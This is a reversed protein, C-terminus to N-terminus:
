PQEPLQTSTCLTIGTSWVVVVVVVEIVDSANHLRFVQEAWGGGWVHDRSTPLPDPGQLPGAFLFVPM